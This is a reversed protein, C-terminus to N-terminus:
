LVFHLLSIIKGCCFMGYKCCFCILLHLKMCTLNAYVHSPFRVYYWSYKERRGWIYLDLSNWLWVQLVGVLPSSPVDGFIHISVTSIAMSLPRMSPRVCHLCVYNVPAQLLLTLSHLVYSYILNRSTIQSYLLESSLTLTCLHMLMCTYLWNFHFGSCKCIFTSFQTM